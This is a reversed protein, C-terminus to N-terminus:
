IAENKLAGRDKNLRPKFKEEKRDGNCAITLGNKRCGIVRREKLGSEFVKGARYGPRAGQLALHELGFHGPLRGIPRKNETATHPVPTL